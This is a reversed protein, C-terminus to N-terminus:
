HMLMTPSIPKPSPIEEIFQCLPLFVNKANPHDWKLSERWRKPSVEILKLSPPLYLQGNDLLPLHLPIRKLNRCKRIEINQLSACVMVGKECCIRELKPLEFFSLQRLNPLAFTITANSGEAKHNEEEEESAIIEEVQECSVVLIEELNQLDKLLGSPFLKKIGNCQSISFIKLCFFIGPAPPELLAPAAAARKVKVLICLNCLSLLELKELKQLPSYSSTSSSLDLVCEIEQCSWIHCISLSTEEQFLSIDTLSKVGYCCEIWLLQLDKPLVVPDEGGINCDKLIVDKYYKSIGRHPGPVQGVVLQYYTPFEAKVSCVYKNFDKIEYFGGSFTELKRLGVADEGRLCGILVFYQLHSFKPLIGKPLEKLGWIHLDLYRLNILMEMGHPVERIWTGHLDLKKLARLKALSPMHTLKDCGYLLLATLNELSSVSCPLGVIGTDSLNLTKLQQMQQFFTEPIKKLTHNGQLLLTSLIQCKPSMKPPIESITNNMLSVMELEEKWEQEIPVEKLQMGAKVMLRPCFDKSLLLMDRVVDAMIVTEGDDARDLLCIEELRNIITHGKEYMTRRSGLEDILGEAMWYEILENRSIRCDEPYLACYLVCKQINPDKLSNFSFNLHNLMLTQMDKARRSCACLERLLNRWDCVDDVGKMSSAITIISLPLGSFHEVVHKVLKELTPALLIGHGVKDLFLDLSEEKSLPQVKVVECGMSQCVEVSRSVLVLKSRSHAPQPIGIDKLSFNEHVDDIILVYRVRGLITLLAAARKSIDEDQPLRKRMASAIDHQLKVVNLKRSMTVWLVKDFKNEKLLQIKIHMMITTKGIGGIGCVGIMGVEDGMLFGWITEKVTPEGGLKMTPLTAESTSPKDTFLGQVFSGQQYTEEVAQIKRGVLESLRKCSFYSMAELDQEVIQAENNIAQVQKLWIKVERKAIKGMHLGEDIRTEVDERLIKLKDLARRLVQIDEHLNRKKGQDTKFNRYFDLLFRRITPAGAGPPGPRVPNDKEARTQVDSTIACIAFQEAGQANDDLFHLFWRIDVILFSPFEKYLFM